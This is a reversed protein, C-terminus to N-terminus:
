AFIILAVALSACVVSAGATSDEDDTQDESSTEVETGEETTVPATGGCVGWGDPGSHGCHDGYDPSLTAAVITHYLRCQITDGSADGVAGTTNFNACATMCSETSNYNEACVNLQVSCYADCISGCVGGDVAGGDTGAHACHDADDTTIGVFAHYVRCDITNGDVDEILGEPLNDVAKICDAVSGFETNECGNENLLAQCLTESATGCVASESNFSAHGCHADVGTQIAAAAHYIRCNISAGDTVTLDATTSLVPCAAECVADEAFATPCRQGMLGCYNECYSGCVEAGSVGAHSCHARRM